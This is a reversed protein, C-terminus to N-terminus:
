KNNLNYWKIFEIVANYTARLKETGGYTAWSSFVCKSLVVEDVFSQICVSYKTIKFQIEKKFYKKTEIKEVVVMLWNWDTHFFLQENRAGNILGENDFWDNLWRNKGLHKGTKLGLFEAILINNEVNNM